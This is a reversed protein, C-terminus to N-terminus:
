VPFAEASRAEARGPRAQLVLFSHASLAGLAFWALAATKLSFLSSGSVCLLACAYVGLLLKFRLATANRAPFTVFAAWALVCLPLGFNALAYAYGADVTSVSHPRMGFLTALDFSALISGSISLRGLFTDGDAEALASVGLLLAIAGIPLFMLILTTWSLPAARAVLFLLVSAAAFRADAAFIAIIVAAGFWLAFRRESRPLPLALAASIAGFNGLSVPELFISSARHDGLFTLWPAILRGDGREGSVFFPSGQNQIQEATLLGRDAYFDFIDFLSTFLAPAFLEIICFIVVVVAAVAFVMRAAAADAYRAGLVAFAVLVLVDRIAKAEVSGAFVALALFNVAIAFVLTWVIMPARWLALALAAVVIAGDVAAVTANAVSSVNTHIFCLVATYGFGAAALTMALYRAPNAVTSM